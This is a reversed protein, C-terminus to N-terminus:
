RNWSMWRRHAPPPLDQTTQDMEEAEADEQQEEKPKRDGKALQGNDEVVLTADAYVGDHSIERRYQWPLTKLTLTAPESEIEITIGGCIADMLGRVEEPYGCFRLAMLTPQGKLYVRLIGHECANSYNFNRRSSYILSDLCRLIRPKEIKNQEVEETAFKQPCLRVANTLM